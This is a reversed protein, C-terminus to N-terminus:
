VAALTVNFRCLRKTDADGSVEEYKSTLLAREAETMALLIRDIGNLAEGEFYMQTTVPRFGTKSVTFHIHPPRSWGAEAPYAGPKITKFRYRGDANTVVKAWGQFNHDLPATNPDKEHAYRGAANAQWVDVLAGAIPAGKADQVVGEVILADGKAIATRGAVRILDADLDEQPNTPYFPGSTQPPTVGGQAGAGTASATASAALVAGSGIFLRRSIQDKTM